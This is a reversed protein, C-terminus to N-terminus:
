SSGIAGCAAAKSDILYALDQKTIVIDRGTATERSPVLIYEPGDKGIRVGPKDEALRGTFDVIGSTVMAAAADIIGLGCIGRSLEDGITTWSVRFTAPDIRVHDIAGRMARMGSAIGPVKSLLGPHARSLLWGTEMASFLKAM